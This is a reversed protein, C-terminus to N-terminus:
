CYTIHLPASINEKHTVEMNGKWCRSKGQGISANSSCDERGERHREKRSWAAQSSRKELNRLGSLYRAFTSCIFPVTVTNMTWLDTSYRMCLVLLACWQFLSVFLMWTFYFTLICWDVICLSPFILQSNQILDWIVPKSLSLWFWSVRLM